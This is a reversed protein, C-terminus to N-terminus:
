VTLQGDNLAYHSARSGALWCGGKQGLQGLSYVLLAGARGSARFAIIQLLVPAFVAPGGAEISSALAFKCM